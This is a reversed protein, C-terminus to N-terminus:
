RLAVPGRNQRIGEVEDMTDLFDYRHFVRRLWRGVDCNGGGGFNVTHSVEMGLGTNEPYMRDRSIGIIGGDNLVVHM